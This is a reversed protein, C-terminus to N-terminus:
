KKDFKIKFKGRFDMNKISEYRHMISEIKEFMETTEPINIVPYRNFEFGNAIARQLVTKAKNIATKIEVHGDSVSFGTLHDCVTYTENQKFIFYMRGKYKFESKVNVRRVGDHNATYATNAEM